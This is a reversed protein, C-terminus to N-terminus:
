DEDNGWFDELRAYARHRNPKWNMAWILPRFLLEDIVAILGKMVPNM